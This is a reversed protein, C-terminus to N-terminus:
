QAHPILQKWAIQLLSQISKWTEHDKMVSYSNKTPLAGFASQDSRPIQDSNLLHDVEVVPEDRFLRITVSDHPIVKDLLEKPRINLTGNCYLCMSFERGMDDKFLLGNEKGFKGQTAFLSALDLLKQHQPKDIELPFYPRRSDKPKLTRLAVISPLFFKRQLYQLKTKDDSYRASIRTWIKPIVNSVIASNKDSAQALTDIIKALDYKQSGFFTLIKRFIRKNFFGREKFGVTGDNALCLLHKEPDFRTSLPLM